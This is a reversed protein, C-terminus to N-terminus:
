ADYLGLQVQYHFEYEKLAKEYRRHDDETFGKQREENDKNLLDQGIILLDNIAKLVVEENVSYQGDARVSVAKLYFADDELSIEYEMLAKMATLTSQLVTLFKIMPSDRMIQSRETDCFLQTSLSQAMKYIELRKERPSDLSIKQILKKFAEFGAYRRATYVSRNMEVLTHRHVRLADQHTHLVEPKEMVQQSMEEM